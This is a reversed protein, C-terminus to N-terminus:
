YTKAAWRHENLLRYSATGRIESYVTLGHCTKYGSNYHGSSVLSIPHAYSGELLFVLGGSDGPGGNTDVIVGEHGFTIKGKGNSRRMDDITCSTFGTACGMKYVFANEDGLLSAIKTQSAIHDLYYKTSNNDIKSEWEVNSDNNNVVAWDEYNHHGIIKGLKGSHRHAQKGEYANPLNADGDGDVDQYGWLHAATVMGERDGNTVHYGSTGMYTNGNLQIGGPMPDQNENNVCLLPSSEGEITTKVDIGDFSSVTPPHYGKKM